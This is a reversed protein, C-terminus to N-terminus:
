TVSLVPLESLQRLLAAHREQIAVREANLAHTRTVISLQIQHEIQADFSEDVFVISENKYNLEEALDNFDKFIRYDVPDNLQSEINSRDAELGALKSKNDNILSTLEQRLIETDDGFSVMFLDYREQPKAERLFRDITDQSLIVRKYVEIDESKKASKFTLDSSNSRIKELVRNFKDTTTIVSVQTPVDDLVEKNRLIKQPEQYLKTSKAALENNKKSHNGTYREINKTFAWEVADYFSSKGFGNPAYIVVFNSPDGEDNTFDFTGDEKYKYARFGEIEVKKIKM